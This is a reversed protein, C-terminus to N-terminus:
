EGRIVALPDVSSARRAPVYAAAASAALVVVAATAITSGDFPRVEFLLSSLLRSTVLSLGIGIVVGAATLSSARAVVMALSRGAPPVWERLRTFITSVGKVLAFLSSIREIKLAM